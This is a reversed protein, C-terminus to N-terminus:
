KGWERLENLLREHFKRSYEELGDVPQSRDMRTDVGVGVSALKTLLVAKYSRRSLNFRTDIGGIEGLIEQDLMDIKPIASAILAIGKDIDAM